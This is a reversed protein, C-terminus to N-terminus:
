AMRTGRTEGPDLRGTRDIASGRPRALPWRGSGPEHRGVDGDRFIYTLGFDRLVLRLLAWQSICRELKAHRPRQAAVGVEHWPRATSSFRSRSGQRSSTPDSRALAHVPVAGARTPESVLPKWPIKANVPNNSRAPRPAARHGRGSRHDHDAISRRSDRLGPGLRWAGPELCRQAQTREFRRYHRCRGFAPM